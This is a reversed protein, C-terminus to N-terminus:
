SQHRRKTLHFVMGNGNRLQTWGQGALRAIMSINHHGGHSIELGLGQQFSDTGCTPRPGHMTRSISSHACTPYSAEQDSVDEFCLLRNGSRGRHGDQECHLTNVGKGEGWESQEVWM